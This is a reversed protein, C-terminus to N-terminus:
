RLVLYGVGAVLAALATVFLARPVYYDLRYYYVWWWRRRQLRLIIRRIEDPSKLMVVGGQEQRGLFPHQRFTPPDFEM